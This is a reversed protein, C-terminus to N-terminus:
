AALDYDERLRRVSKTIVGIEEHQSLPQSIREPRGLVQRELADRQEQRVEEVRRRQLEELTIIDPNAAHLDIQVEDSLRTGTEHNPFNMQESM